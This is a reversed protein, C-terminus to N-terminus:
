RRGPRKCPRPSSIGMSPAVIAARAGLSRLLSAGTDTRTTGIVEYGAGVLLAVLRKGVVGSAGALFVRQKMITHKRM